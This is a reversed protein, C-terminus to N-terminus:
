FLFKGKNIIEYDEIIIQSTINGLWNNKNCKGVLKIEIFGKNLLDELNEIEKESVNFKIISLKNSLTIKLTTGNEKRYLTIMNNDIKLNEIAILAENFDKGWLPKLESILLIDKYDIDFGKYIYDVYYIIENSIDALKLDIKKIFSEVQDEALCM